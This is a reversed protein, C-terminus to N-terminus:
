TVAGAEAGVTVYVEAHRCAVLERTDLAWRMATDPGIAAVRIGVM